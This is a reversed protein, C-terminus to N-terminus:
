VIYFPTSNCIWNSDIGEIEVRIFHKIDFDKLPIDIKIEPECINDLSYVVDKGSYVRLKMIKERMVKAYINLCSKKAEALTLEEGPLMEGITIDAEDFGTAAIIRGARIAEVVSERTPLKGKLYIINIGPYDLMRRVGFLDVSNMIAIRGGSLWYKEIETDALPIMPESDVADFDYGTWYPAYPHTSCIAGGNEHAFAVAQKLYADIERDSYLSRTFKPTYADPDIGMALAHYLGHSIHDNSDKWNFPHYEQGDLFLVKDDSYKGVDLTGDYPANDKLALSCIDYNMYRMLANITGPSSDCGYWDLSHMHIALKYNKKIPLHKKEIAIKESEGNIFREFYALLNRVYKRWFALCREASETIEEPFLIQNLFYMGKGYKGRLILAGNKVAPDMFSGIVDWKENPLYCSLASTRVEEGVLSAGSASKILSDSNPSAMRMISFTNVNIKWMLMDDPTIVEPESFLRKGEDEIWPMMYTKYPLKEGSFPYSTSAGITDVYRHILQLYGLEEPMFYPAFRMYDQHMFLLIGGRKVWERVYLEDNEIYDNFGNQEIIVVDYKELYMPVSFDIKEVEIGEEGLFDVFKYPPQFWHAFYGIRLRSVMVQLDELMVFIQALYVM